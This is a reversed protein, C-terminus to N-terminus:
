PYELSDGGVISSGRSRCYMGMPTKILFGTDVLAELIAVCVLPDVNWLRCAQAETLCLGPMNLYEGRVHEALAAILPPPTGASRSPDSSRM